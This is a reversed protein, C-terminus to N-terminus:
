QGGTAVHLKKATLVTQRLATAAKQYHVADNDQDDTRAVPCSDTAVFVRRDSIAPHGTEEAVRRAADRMQVAMVIGANAVRAMALRQYLLDTNSTFFEKLMADGNGTKFSVPVVTRGAAELKPVIIGKIGEDPVGNIYEAETPFRGLRDHMTQVNANAQETPQQMVRTGGLLYVPVDPLDTILATTRDQWNAVGGMAIVADVDGAQLSSEPTWLSRRLENQVGSREVLDAAVNRDLELDPNTRLEKKVGVQEMVLQLDVSSPQDGILVNLRDAIEPIVGGALEYVNDGLYFNSFDRQETSM